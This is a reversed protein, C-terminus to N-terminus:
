HTEILAKILVEYSLVTDADKQVELDAELKFCVKQLTSVHM